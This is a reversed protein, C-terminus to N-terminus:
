TTNGVRAVEQRFFDMVKIWSATLGLLRLPEDGADDFWTLAKLFHYRQFDRGPFKRPLAGLIQELTLDTQLIAFLDFFDKRLGRDAIATLKMLAIDLLGATPFLGGSETLPDLLPYPYHFFSAKVGGADITVTGRELQLPTVDSLAESLAAQLGTPVFEEERFFDHDLSSRHGLQLALGSGGALYFGSVAEHGNLAQLLDRQAATLPDDSV